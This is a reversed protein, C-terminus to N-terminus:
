DLDIKERAFSAGERPIDLLDLIHEPRVTGEGTMRVTMRVAAESAAEMTVILPRIDRRRVKGERDEEIEIMERLLLSEIRQPLDPLGNQLSVRYTVSRIRSAAPKANVPVETV